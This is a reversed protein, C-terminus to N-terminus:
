KALFIALTETLLVICIEGARVEAVDLLFYYELICFFLHEDNGQKV